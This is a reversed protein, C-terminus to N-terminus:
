IKMIFYIARYPPLINVLATHTHAGDASITHTHAGGGGALETAINGVHGTTGDPNNEPGVFGGFDGSLSFQTHQHSPIEATTLTHAGTAGTHSHSGNSSTTPGDTTSGGAANLAYTSGAGIPVRDRLDPTGNTGDCIQWGSPASGIVGYWLIISGVPFLNSLTLARDASATLRGQADVTINPVNAGSAGYAGPTVATNALAVTGTTTIPGGTLGTGTGVSTVTGSTSTFAAVMNTGDSRIISYNGQAVAVGADLNNVRMTLSFAGSTGNYVFWYGPTTGYELIRNGTLAGTFNQVQAAVEGSTLTTTGVGGAVNKSLASIAFETGQGFGLTYFNTGDCMIFCADGPALAKNAGGDIEDTGSPDLTLTGSGENRVMTFWDDGLTAGSTLTFTIAGGTSIIFQARDNAALTYNANKTAIPHSQNLTSGIARVGLGQLSAADANSTGAGFTIVGWAGAATTNDQLYIFKAIGADVNAIPNGDFDLVDFDDSGLNRFLTNNGLSGNTADPMFIFLDQADPTVDMVDALVNSGPPANLPWVLLLGDVDTLDVASYSLQSSQIPRGGFTEVFSM